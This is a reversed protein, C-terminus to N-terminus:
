LNKAQTTYDAFTVIRKKIFHHFETFYNTRLSYTTIRGFKKKM